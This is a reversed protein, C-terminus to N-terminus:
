RLRIVRKRYSLKSYEELGCEVNATIPCQGCKHVLGCEDCLITRCGKRGDKLLDIFLLLDLYAEQGFLKRNIWKPDCYKGINLEKLFYYM